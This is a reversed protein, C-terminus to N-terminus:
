WTESSMVIEIYSVAVCVFKCECVRLYVRHIHEYIYLELFTNLPSLFLPSSLSFSGNEIKYIRINISKKLGLANVM